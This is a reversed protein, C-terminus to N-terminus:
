CERSGVMHGFLVSQIAIITRNNEAICCYCFCSSAKTKSISLHIFLQLLNSAAARLVHFRQKHCNRRAGFAHDSGRGLSTSSFYKSNSQITQSMSVGIWCNARGEINISWGYYFSHLIHHSSKIFKLIVVDFKWIGKCFKVCWYLRKFVIRRALCQLHLQHSEHLSLLVM